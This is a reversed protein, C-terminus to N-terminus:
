DEKNKMLLKNNMKVFSTGELSYIANTKGGDPINLLAEYATTMSADFDDAFHILLSEMTCPTNPSGYELKGHHSSIIGFLQIVIPDCVDIGLNNVITTLLSIGMPIHGVFSGEFSKQSENTYEYIKGIDHLISGAIILELSLVDSFSRYLNIATKTVGLTHKALGGPYAHHINCAAPRVYFEPIDLVQSLISQLKVNKVYKRVIDDLEIKIENGDIEEPIIKKTSLRQTKIITGVRVNLIDRYMSASAEIEYINIDKIAAQLVAFFNFEWTICTVVEGSEELKAMFRIPRKTSPDGESVIELITADFKFMQKADSLDIESIRKITESM